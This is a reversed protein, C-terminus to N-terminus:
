GTAKTRPSKTKAISNVRKTLGEIQEEIKRVAKAMEWEVREGKSAKKLISNALTTYPIGTSKAEIKLWNLVDLDLRMSTSVKASAEENDVQSVRQTKGTEKALKMAQKLDM